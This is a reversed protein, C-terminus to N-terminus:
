MDTPGRRRFLGGPRNATPWPVVGVV